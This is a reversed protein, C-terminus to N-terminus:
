PPLQRATFSDLSYESNGVVPLCGARKEMCLSLHGFYGKILEYGLGWM